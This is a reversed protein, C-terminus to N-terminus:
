VILKSNQPTILKKPEVALLAEIDDMQEIDKLITPAFQRTITEMIGVIAIADEKSSFIVKCKEEDTTISEVFTKLIFWSIAPLSVGIQKHMRAEIQNNQM